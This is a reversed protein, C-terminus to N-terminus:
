IKGHFVLNYYIVITVQNEIFFKTNEKQKINLDMLIKGLWLAQNVFFTIVIFQAKASSQSM